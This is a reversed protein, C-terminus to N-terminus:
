QMESPWSYSSGPSAGPLGDQPGGFTYVDLEVIQAQEAPIPWQLPTGKYLDGWRRSDWYANLAILGRGDLMVRREWKLMEMLDGCTGDPLKPVCSTNGDNAAAPDAPSLGAATRTVNILAAAEPEQGLNLLAEARLLRIEDDSILPLNEVIEFVYNWGTVDFYYSWRWLGRAARKFNETYPFFSHNPIVYRPSAGFLQAGLSGSSAIQDELTTGQPFRQDETIILFPDDDQNAGFWPRREGLPKALWRQYNGSTDAMGYIFYNAAGWSFGLKQIYYAWNQFNGDLNNDMMFPAAEDLDDLVAQWDVTENSWRPLAARFQARLGHALSVLESASTEVSLWDAPLFWTAGTAMSIATDFYGSAAAMVDTYPVATQEASVDTTQDVVYGQDYYIAITAHAVGLVFNGFAQMRQLTDPPVQAALEEDNELTRLGDSVAAIARYSRQWMRNVVNSYDPWASQNRIQVRPIGSMPINGWNAPTGVTQLTTNAVWYTNTWDHLGSYWTNFSGAVLSEVDGPSSLALERDPDNLNTVDLDACGAVGFLLLLAAAATNNFMRM